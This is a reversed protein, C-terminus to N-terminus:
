EDCDVAAQTATGAAAAPETASGSPGLIKDIAPIVDELKTEAALVKGDPGILYVLWDPASYQRVFLRMVDEYGMFAQPWDMGHEAAYGAFDEPEPGLYVTVLVLRRDKAVRDRIAGIGSIPLQRGLISKVSLVLYRGAFDCSRLPKDHLDTLSMPPLPKGVAIPQPRVLPLEGLSLPEDSRGAKMEPVEFHKNVTGVSEPRGNGSQMDHVTLSLQYSGAVVDEIRFTGDPEIQFMYSTTGYAQGGNEQKRKAFYAASWERRETESMDMWTHPLKIGGWPDTVGTILRGSIWASAIRGALEPPIQMRGTVPRGKGGISVSATKGAEVMVKTRSTGYQSRNRGKRLWSAELRGTVVEPLSFHGKQDATVRYTFSVQGSEPGGMETHSAMVEEGAGVRSGIHITGAIAGMPKLRIQGVAEVDKRAACAWGTKHLVVVEYHAVDRRVKLLGDAGVKRVRTGYSSNFHNNEIGVYQHAKIIAAEAGSAPEGDPTLVAIAFQQVKPMPRGASIGKEVEVEYPSEGSAYVPLYKDAPLVVQTGVDHLLVFTKEGRLAVRDDRM